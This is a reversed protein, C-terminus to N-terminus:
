ADDDDVGGRDADEAEDTEDTEDAFSYPAWPGTTEIRVLTGFEPDARLAAVARTLEDCRDADVLYAANLVQPQAEGTLDTGHTRLRRAAASTARLTADIRDVAARVADRHAERGRQRDRLRDLYARGSRPPTGPTGDPGPAPGVAFVKVGWEARGRVRDLVTLFRASERAIAARARAEDAYLTTLPVPVAPGAAAVAAVVEHHARAYRELTARDSLHTRLADATFQAAPVDQVVAALAGVRLCRVATGEAHGRLGALAALAPTAAGGCVAFVRVAGGNM